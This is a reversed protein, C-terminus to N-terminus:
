EVSFAKPKEDDDHKIHDRWKKSNEMAEFLNPCKRAINRFPHTEEAEAEIMMAIILESLRM